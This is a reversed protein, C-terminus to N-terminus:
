VGMKRSVMIITELINIEDDITIMPAGMEKVLHHFHKYQNKFSPHKFQILDLYWGLGKEDWTSTKDDIVSELKYPGLMLDTFLSGNEGEVTISFRPRIKTWSMSASIPIDKKAVLETHVNDCVDYNKCWWNVSTVEDVHGALPYVVSLIHPLVDELIGKDTDQRFDTQSRYSKLLNEFAVDIGTIEGLTEDDLIKKMQTLSPTFVYNHAPLIVLGLKTKLDRIEECEEVTRALPKECLIHKGAELADKIMAAHLNPPTNIAVAEVSEDELLMKYDAYGEAIDCISQVEDMRTKNLDSVAIVHINDLQQIAKLHFM